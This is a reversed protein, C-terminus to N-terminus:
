SRPPIRLMPSIRSLVPRALQGAALPLADRDAAGDYPLRLHEQEVLRERVQVRLQPDLRALLDRAQV